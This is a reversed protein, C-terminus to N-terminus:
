PKRGPYGPDGKEGKGSFRGTSRGGTTRVARWAFGSPSAPLRGYAWWCFSFACCALQWHRRIAVDSRVQYGSWGLVHKVQKYSQEVWMRLGYLRVVEAVSAPALDGENGRESGPAPLNTTLYWTALDPLTAPDTTVVLARKAREKGYPGAEVELVWWEERHGDRFCRVVMLWEGPEEVGEWGLALAAEWLAGITGELHWWCHSKKLSLVYGVGLEEVSRKFGRDEGYFSDAVVARFPVGVEVSRRVLQQAIKLKTRFEPANKGGGFHHAPTYPEVELPYYVGEDAWLSSVSVVGNDTKGINALWQRGVHATRKGWKRDGHEDIVLVGDGNPATSPDEILLELRRENLDEPDWGSESLFWQLSQAEKRQAGAVPETNALATLTKNREAPLLLGELYRRFGERQARARRFLDDFRAACEELPGPSPAVPLRRTM